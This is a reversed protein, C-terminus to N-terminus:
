LRTRKIIYLVDNADEKQAQEEVGDLFEDAAAANPLAAQFRPVGDIMLRVLSYADIWGHPPKTYDGDNWDPDSQIERIVM